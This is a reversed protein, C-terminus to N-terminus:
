ILLVYILTEEIVFRSEIQIDKGHIDKNHYDIISFSSTIITAITGLIQQIIKKNKYKNVVYPYYQSAEMEALERKNLTKRSVIKNVKGSIIYPLFNMNNNLLMKKASLMLKIYDDQNIANPSITDGFYKYFLNFILQRQFGNMMEGHDNVLEKKYFEIEKPDYPGWDREIIKMTYEYNFKTQLYISEDAKTLNSEYRDFDSTNDEGERKSSSLTVYSYEYQIDSIQFKNSKQISTYNLSVMNQNFTYKPIINLIINRVADASHSVTDKGRIDQKAWIVANNKANRNVNSISTEDLKSKIDVNSFVPAYLINDYVDLLFEDIDSVKRMYAFHTIIPICLNMMISIQMLAKAHENTYQLQPNNASKYSLTLSYNAEVMAGIKAFLSPQIIYRCIDYMFNSINYEPYYDIFFKLQALNTFYEKEIDFFKEFYNLYHCTHDRLLDSNYSKKPNIMFFDIRSQHPQDTNEQNTEDIHYYRGIPAMIINKANTFFVDEPNPNWEDVLPLQQM